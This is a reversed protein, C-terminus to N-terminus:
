RACEAKFDLWAGWMVDIDFVSGMLRLQNMYM